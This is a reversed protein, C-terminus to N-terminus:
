KKQGDNADVVGQSLLLHSFDEVGRKIRSNWDKDTIFTRKIESHYVAHGENDTQLIPTLFFLGTRDVPM